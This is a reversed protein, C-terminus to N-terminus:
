QAQAVERELRDRALMFRNFAGGDNATLPVFTDRNVADLRRAAALEQPPVAVHRERYWQLRAAVQNNISAARDYPHLEAPPREVAPPGSPAVAPPPPRAPTAGGAPSAAGRSGGAAASPRPAEFADGTLGLAAATRPGVVGDATLGHERQFARVARDTRQGFRGDPTLESAGRERLRQQIQNVANGRAGIRVTM